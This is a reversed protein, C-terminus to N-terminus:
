FMRKLTNVVRKIDVTNLEPHIPLSMAERYYTESNPFNKKKINLKKYRPHRYVPIYHLNVGIGHSIMKDFMQKKSYKSLNTPIRIIYLHRSSVANPSQFQTSLPLDELQKDYVSAIQHRKKIFKNLKKLQSCGLAAHVDSMRYHFGLEIQEYYWPGHHDNQFFNKDRTIGHSRLIQMKHAIKKDNTAAIGGEATTIIKVPHFSFVAIDSYFCTGVPQKLYRAGICHSADEIIKFGYKKSLMHIAKMDCSLGGLHVPMVIKPLKNKKKATILKEELAKVSMNFTLPDIDVFDVSAECYLACNASAAFTIPSTWFIDGKKLGLALCSIHLASTASSTAVCFNSKIIKKISNEFIPVQPGQTLFDSKLVKTVSEIDSKTINQKGYSIM